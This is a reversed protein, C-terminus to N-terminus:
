SSRCVWRRLSAENSGSKELLSIRESRSGTGRWADLDFISSDPRLHYSSQHFEVLIWVRWLFSHRSLQHSHNGGSVRCHLRRSQGNRSRGLVLGCASWRYASEAHCHHVQVLVYIGPQIRIGSWLFPGCLRHFRIGSTVLHGNGGSCM